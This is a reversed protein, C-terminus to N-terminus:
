KWPVGERDDFHRYRRDISNIREIDEQDLQLSQADLNDQLHEKTTAKPIAVVNDFDWLWALCVQAQSVGHKEAVEVIEDTGFARARCFPAYAVLQYDNRRASELHEERPPLFPHMEVQNAVMPPDLYSKAEEAMAGSFNSVGAYRIKGDAYLENFAALTEEPSYDNVPWHVYLLDITDFGLNELSGEVSTLVDDYANKEEDIKTAVIVDERPVDAQRVGEGVEQENDYMQASDLHRYGLELATKVSQTCQDNNVTGLGITPVVDSAM